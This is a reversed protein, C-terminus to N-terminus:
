ASVLRDRNRRGDPAIAASGAVAVEPVGTAVPRSAGRQMGAAASPLFTKLRYLRQRYNGEPGEFSCDVSEFLRVIRDLAQRQQVTQLLVLRRKGRGYQGCVNILLCHGQDVNHLDVLLAEARSLHFLAALEVRAAMLPQGAALSSSLPADFTWEAPPTPPAVKLLAAEAPRSGQAAAKLLWYAARVDNNEGERRTRWAYMGCEYQAQCHGMNAARELYSQAEAVSRQSFEPKVYIRALAFWADALGQEGAQTLWRIARKFNVATVGSETRVGQVNMRAFWLGLVLQADRDGAHAALERCRASEERLKLRACAPPLLQQPNAALEDLARACRALLLANQAPLRLTCAKKHNQLIGQHEQMLERAVPLATQVFGGWDQAQWMHELLAYMPPQQPAARAPDPEVGLRALLWQAEALGAAAAANLGDLAKARLGTGHSGNEHFVLQALVMGAQIVGADFAREYLAVVSPSHRAVSFPVHAGILRWAQECGQQAARQLWHLATTESQPLGAGGFLYLKGLALQADADGKRARKIIALEERNAMPKNATQDATPFGHGPLEPITTPQVPRVTFPLLLFYFLPYLLLCLLLYRRPVALGPM